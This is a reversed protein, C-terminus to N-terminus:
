RWCQTKNQTLSPCTYRETHVCVIHKQNCSMCVSRPSALIAYFNHQAFMQLAFFLRRVFIYHLYLIHQKTCPQAETLSCTFLSGTLMENFSYNPMEPSASILKKLTPQILLLMKKM